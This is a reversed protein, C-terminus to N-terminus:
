LAIKQIGSEYVYPDLNFWWSHPHLATKYTRPPVVIRIFSAATVFSTKTINWAPTKSGKARNWCGRGGRERGPVEPTLIWSVRFLFLRFLFSLFAVFPSAFSRAPFLYIPIASAGEYFNRKSAKKAINRIFAHTNLRSITQQFNKTRALRAFYLLKNSGKIHYNPSISRRATPYRM